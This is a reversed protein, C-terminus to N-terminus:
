KIEVKRQALEAPLEKKNLTLSLIGNEYIAEVAETNINEPLSFTRKFSNFSYERRTFAKKNLEESNEKKGSITIFDKEIDISLENKEFGPVAFQLLVSSDNESINVAASNNKNTFYSAEPFHTSFLDDFVQYFNPVGQPRKRNTLMTMTHIKKNNFKQEFSDYKDFLIGHFVFQCTTHFLYNTDSM